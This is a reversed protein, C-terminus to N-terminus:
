NGPIPSGAAKITAYKNVFAVWEQLCLAADNFGNAGNVIYTNFFPSTNDFTGVPFCVSCGLPYKKPWLKEVHSGKFSYLIMEKRLEFLSRVTDTEWKNGFEKVLRKLLRFLDILLYKLSIGPILFVRAGDIANFDTDLKASLAVGLRNLSEAFRDYIDLKNAFVTANQLPDAKKEAASKYKITKMSRVALIALKEAAIGPKKYLKKFIVTYNYGVFSEGSQSAVLYDVGAQRLTIATDLFQMFCAMLIVLDMKGQGGDGFAALIAAKLKNMSLMAFEEPPPPLPSPNSHPLNGGFFVGYAAGHGWVFLLYKEAKRGDVLVYQRFYTTIDEQCFIDFDKEEGIRVLRSRKDGGSGALAEITFFLTTRKVADPGPQYGPDITVLDQPTGNILLVVAVGRSIRQGLIDDLMNKADSVYLPDIDIM